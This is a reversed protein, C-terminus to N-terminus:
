SGHRAVPLRGRLQVARHAAPQDGDRVLRAYVGTLAAFAV